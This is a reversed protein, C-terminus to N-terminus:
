KCAGSGAVPFMRARPYVVANQVPSTVIDKGAISKRAQPGQSKHWGSCKAGSKICVKQNKLGHKDWTLSGSQAQTKVVNCHYLNSNEQVTSPSIVINSTTSIQCKRDIGMHGCQVDSSSGQFLQFLGSRGSSASGRGKEGLGGLRDWNRCHHICLFVKIKCLGGNLTLTTVSGHTDCFGMCLWCSGQWLPCFSM